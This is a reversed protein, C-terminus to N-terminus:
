GGRFLAVEGLLEELIGEKERRYSEELARLLRLHKERLAAIEEEAKRAEEARLEELRAKARREAQSFLDKRKDGAAALIEAARRKGEEEIRQAEEEASLIARL